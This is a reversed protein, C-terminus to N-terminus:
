RYSQINWSVSFFPSHLEDGFEDNIDLEIDLYWCNFRKDFKPLYTIIGLEEVYLPSFSELDKSNNGTQQDAINYPDHTVFNSKNLLIERNRYLGDFPKVIDSAIDRGTKSVLNNRIM